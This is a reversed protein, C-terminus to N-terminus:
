NALQPITLFLHVKSAIIILLLLATLLLLGVGAESSHQFTRFIWVWWVVEYASSLFWYVGRRHNHIHKLLKELFEWNTTKIMNLLLKLVIEQFIITGVCLVVAKWFLGIYEDREFM